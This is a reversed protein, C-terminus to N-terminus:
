RRAVLRAVVVLAAILAFSAIAFWLEATASQAQPVPRDFNAALAPLPLALACLTVFRKM